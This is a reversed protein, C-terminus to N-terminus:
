ATQNQIQAEVSPTFRPCPAAKDAFHKLFVRAFDLSEAIVNHMDIYRYTALRGLFSVMPTGPAMAYYKKLLERDSPGRM